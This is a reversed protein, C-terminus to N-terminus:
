ISIYFIYIIFKYILCVSKQASQKIIQLQLIKLKSIIFNLLEQSAIEYLSPHELFINSLAILLMKRKLKNHWESLLTDILINCNQHIFELIFIFLM